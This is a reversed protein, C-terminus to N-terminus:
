HVIQVPHTGLVMGYYEVMRLFDANTVDKTASTITKFNPSTLPPANPTQCAKARLYNVMLEFIPFPQDIFINGERDRDMSDDWRGSFKSSLMSGPVSTLTRRLVAMKTGGVNLHLVDSPAAAGCVITKEKEFAAIQKELEKEREVLDKQRKKLLTPLAELTSELLDDKEDNEGQKQEEIESPAM